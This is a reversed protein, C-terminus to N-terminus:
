KNDWSNRPDGYPWGDLMPGLFNVIRMREAHGDAYGVVLGGNHRGVPRRKYDSASDKNYDGTIAGTVGAPPRWQWDSVGTAYDNFKEPATVGVVDSSCQAADVFISSTSPGVIQGLSYSTNYNCFNQNVAYGRIYSSDTPCIYVKADGMYKLLNAYWSVTSRGVTYYEKNDDTYMAMSLNLQKVNSTCSIERAKARAQALAPLLMSALIAIIAIVVLLEILTFTRHKVLM